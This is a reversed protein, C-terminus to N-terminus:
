RSHQTSEFVAAETSYPSLGARNGRGIEGRGPAREAANERPARGAGAPTPTGSDRPVRRAAQAGPPRGAHCVDRLLMPRIFVGDFGVGLLFGPRALDHLADRRQQGGARLARADDFDDRAASWWDDFKGSAPWPSLPNTWQYYSGAWLSYLTMGVGRETSVRNPIEDFARLHDHTDIAPTADIAAKIRAYEPSQKADDAAAPSVALAVAIALCGTVRM